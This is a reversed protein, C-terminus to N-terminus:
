SRIGRPAVRRALRRGGALLALAAYFSACVPLSREMDVGEDGEGGGRGGRPSRGRRNQPGPPAGCAMIGSKRHAVIKVRSRDTPYETGFPRDIVACTAFSLCGERSLIRSQASLRKARRPKAPMPS